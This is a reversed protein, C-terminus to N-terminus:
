LDKAAIGMITTSGAVVGSRHAHARPLIQEAYFRATAIKNQYFTQDSNEVQLHRASILASKALLWGGLVYGSLMMYNYSAAGALEPDAAANELIYDTALILEQLAEAFRQSIIPFDDGAEDQLQQQFSSLEDRLDSWSGGNDRLLKRGVLDNAQIGTTGEYIPTIRADRFFQAAGTEEVYGMGGHVQVGLSTVEQAVETCWGKVVPTMFDLRKQATLRATDDVEHNAFDHESSGVLAVARGAEVLARMTMLMRRVDAHHVITVDGEHGPASGQVREAAYEVAKQHAREAVGIGQVGVELRAHNMMTFMYKLGHHPEGVLYGIAGHGDGFSMVCTPSAHIGLKHELSVPKVDNREGPSGDENLLFKPVVFLSIGKVGEPADPLRALVLHVTNATMDHDGWTIYIKTGKILYHDGEPEAVSRVAALDSGAQPETLCMTGTWEGSILKTLYRQNMEEGAHEYMSEIASATLMPCLGFAMNAANWIESCAVQLSFPLGQGGFQTPQSISTWGSESFQRYADAFGDPSVVKGDVLRSHQQDGSWNLPALVETGFKGAEELIAAVMDPTAEEYGPLAAIKNIEVLEELVFQLDKVPASYNTM